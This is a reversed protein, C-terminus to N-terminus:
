HAKGRGEEDERKDQYMVSAKGKACQIRKIQAVSPSRAINNCKKIQTLADKHVQCRISFRRKSMPPVTVNKVVEAM